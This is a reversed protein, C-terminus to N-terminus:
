IGGVNLADALGEGVPSSAEGAASVRELVSLNSIDLTEVVCRWLGLKVTAQYITSYGLMMAVYFGIAAATAFIESWLSDSGKVMFGVVLLGVIGVIVGAVTFLLAYGLFRGYVGFVQATRLRSTM